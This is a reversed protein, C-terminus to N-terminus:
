ERDGRRNGRRDKNWGRGKGSGGFKGRNQSNTETPHGPVYDCDIPVLEKLGERGPATPPSSRYNQNHHQEHYRNSNSRPDLDQRAGHNYSRRDQSIDRERSRGRPPTYGHQPHGPSLHRSRDRYYNPNDRRPRYSDYARTPKTIRDALCRTKTPAAPHHAEEVENHSRKKSAAQGGSVNSDGNEPKILVDAQSVRSDPNYPRLLIPRRREAEIDAVLRHKREDLKRIERTDALIKGRYEIDFYGTIELWDKLDPDHHLLEQLNASCAGRATANSDEQGQPNKAGQRISVQVQSQSSPQTSPKMDSSHIAERSNNKHAEAIQQDTGPQSLISSSYQLEPPRSPTRFTLPSDFIAPNHNIGPERRNLPTEPHLNHQAPYSHAEKTMQQHMFKSAVPQDLINRGPIGSTSTHNAYMGRAPAPLGMSLPVPYDSSLLPYPNAPNAFGLDPDIKAHMASNLNSHQAILEDIDCAQESNNTAPMNLGNLQPAIQLYVGRQQNSAQYPLASPALEPGAPIAGGLVNNRPETDRLLTSRSSIQASPQVVPATTPQMNDQAQSSQKTPDILVCLFHIKFYHFM